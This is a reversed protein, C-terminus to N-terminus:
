DAPRYQRRQVSLVLAGLGFMVTLVSLLGGIIPLATLLSVIFAGVLLALFPRSMGPRAWGLLFRGATLSTVVHAVSMVLVFLAFMLISGGVLASFTWLAVVIHFGMGGRSLFLDAVAVFFAIVVALVALLTLAGMGLSRLPLERGLMAARWATPSALWLLVAGILMLSIFRLFFRGVAEGGGNGDGGDETQPQGAGTGATGVGAYERVVPEGGAPALERNNGLRGGAVTGRVDVDAATYILDGGVRGSEAVDLDQTVALVDKRVQGGITVRGSLARVTGEVTGTVTVDGTLAFLAGTVTGNVTVERAMVFLDGDIRGDVRVTEASLYLDHPVTDAAAIVIDQSSRFKRRPGEQQTAWATSTLFMAVALVSLGVVLARGARLRRDM